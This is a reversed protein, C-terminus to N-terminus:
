TLTFSDADDLVPFKRRFESLKALDIDCTAVSAEGPECAAMPRGYYDTIVSNGTYQSVGDDGVRNVGVVFCQNEVARAKLLLDWVAIRSKPWSAVYIAVDYDGTNRSWVPFRLDYCVQLLFRVGGYEVVVRSRGPVYNHPEGGYTFLHRKDYYAVHGDPKVFYLRNVYSEGSAVAVSGVVAGGLRKAAAKMWCLTVGGEAEAIAPADMVFGTAFMEPLVYLDSPSAGVLLREVEHLTAQRDGTDINHQVISIRM